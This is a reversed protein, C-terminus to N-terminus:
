RLPGSSHRNVRQAARDWEFIRRAVFGGLAVGAALGMGIGIASFIQTAATIVSASQGSMMANLGRYIALGPLMSVIGATSIALEPVRLYRYTLYGSFGVVAAAAAVGVGDSPAIPRVLDLTMWGALSIVVTVAVARPPAYTMLAFSLGVLGAGLTASLSHANVAFDSVMIIPVDLQQAIGLTLTVGVAIGATMILVELGRAGATIYFGDLADKAAGVVGLGALLVIIGAIAVLSPSDGGIPDLNATRAWYLLAVPLTAVAACVVQTFFAAFGWGTLVRKVMEVAAATIGALIFTVLGAGFLTVIGAALGGTAATVVWHRYPHPQRLADELEQRAYAVDLPEHDTEGWGTVRDVVKQVQQLRSYDPARTSVVRLVTLPDEDLGRHISVEVSTFTIDVHASRIGYASTLRLMTATVDAASAGTSLMAEGIRLTLDIVARAQRQSIEEDGGPQAILQTPPNVGRVAWTARSRWVKALDPVGRVQPGTIDSAGPVEMPGAIEYADATDVPEVDVPEVDGPEVDATAQATQATMDTHTLAATTINAAAVASPDVRPDDFIPAGTGRDESRQPILVPGTAGTEADSVSSEVDSDAERKPVDNM